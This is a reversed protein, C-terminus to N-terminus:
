GRKCHPPPRYSRLEEWAAHLENFYEHISHHGQSISCLSQQLQCIRVDDPQAFRNKLVNWIQFAGKMYFVTATISPTLSKLLWAVLLNNCRTWSSFLPDNFDPKEVSGDIFGTKNRISLALYFNRSWVHYNMSTLLPTVTVTSHNDSHHLYYPSHPDELPSITSTSSGAAM